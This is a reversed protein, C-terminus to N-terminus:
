MGPTRVGCIMAMTILESLSTAHMPPMTVPLWRSANM